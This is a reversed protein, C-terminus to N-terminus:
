YYFQRPCGRSASNREPVHRLAENFNSTRQDVVYREGKEISVITPCSLGLAVAAEEQRKNARERAVRLRRGIEHAPLENPDTM